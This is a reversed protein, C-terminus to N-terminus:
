HGGRIFHLKVERIIMGMENKGNMESEDPVSGKFKGGTGWKSDRTVEYYNMHDSNILKRKFEPNQAFKQLVIEKLIDREKSDWLKSSKIDRSIRKIEYPNSVGKINAAISHCNNEKAKRYQFLQESSAFEM